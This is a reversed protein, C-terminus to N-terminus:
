LDEYPDCFLPNERKWAEAHKKEKFVRLVCQPKTKSIINFVPYYGYHELAPNIWGPCHECYHLCLGADNDLNKYLSPCRNMRLEFYDRTIEMHMDCNEELRIHDWYDYLGQFKPTSFYPELRKVAAEAGNRWYSRLHDYGLDALMKFLENYMRVFHDSPLM